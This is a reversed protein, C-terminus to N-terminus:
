YTYAKGTKKSYKISKNLIFLSFLFSLLSCIFLYGIRYFTESDISLTSIMFHRFIELFHYTPIHIVIEDM